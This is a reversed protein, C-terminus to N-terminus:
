ARSRSAARSIPGAAARSWPRSRPRCRRPSSCRRRRGRAPASSGSPCAARRPSRGRALAAADHLREVLLAIDFRREYDEDEAVTLLDISCRPSGRAGCSRGRRFQQAPQPPQLRQRARLAGRRRGVAAIRAHGRATVAGSAIHVLRENSARMPKGGPWPRSSKTTRCRGSPATSSAWRTSASAARRPVRGRRREHAGERPQRPRGGAGRVGPARPPALAGLAPRRDDHGGHRARRRDVIVIRGAPDIPARAPTYRARRARM